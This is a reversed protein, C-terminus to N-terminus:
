QKNIVGDESLTYSSGSEDTITFSSIQESTLSSNAVFLELSSLSMTGVIKLGISSGNGVFPESSSEATLVETYTDATSRDWILAPIKLVGALTLHGDYLLRIDEPTGNDTSGEQPSITNSEMTVDNVRVKAQGSVYIGGGRGTDSASNSIFYCDNLINTETTNEFSIAGGNSYKGGTANSEFLTGTAILKNTNQDGGPPTMYIAGGPSSEGTTKNGIFQCNKLTLTGSKVLIAGGGSNSTNENNQMTCHTMTLDAEASIMSANAEISNGDFIILANDSGTFTLSQDSWFLEDLLESNRTITTSGVSILQVAANTVMITETAEMSGSIYIPSQLPTDGTIAEVLDAWTTVPNTQSGLEGEPTTTGPEQSPPNEQGTSDDAAVLRGESDLTYIAGDNGVVEFLGNPDGAYDGVSVIELGDPPSTTQTAAAFYTVNIKIKPSDVKLSSNANLQIRPQCPADAEVVFGVESIAVNQGIELTNEGSDSSGIIIDTTGSQWSGSLSVNNLISTGTSYLLGNGNVFHEAVVKTMSLTGESWILGGACNNMNNDNLTITYDDNGLSINSDPQIFFLGPFVGDPVSALAVTINLDQLPIIEKDGNFTISSEATMTTAKVYIKSTASDAVAEALEAWTTVPNTQSGLEGSVVGADPTTTGSTSSNTVAVADSTATATKNGTAAENTNKVVCYFYSTKGASVTATYDEKTAGSIETGGENSLSTNEYWQYTLSGGDSVSAAVMLVHTIDQTGGAAFSETKGEPQKTITPAAANVISPEAKFEESKEIGDTTVCWEDRTSLKVTATKSGVTNTEATAEWANDKPTAGTWSISVNEIVKYTNSSGSRDYLKYEVDAGDVTKYQATLVLNGNQTVTGAGAIALFSENLEYKTLVVASTTVNTGIRTVTYPVQGIAEASDGNTAGITYSNENPTVTVDVSETGSTYTETVTFDNHNIQGVLMYGQSGTYKATISTLEGEVSAVAVVSTITAATKAGTVSNNTNTIVCYFYKTEKANVTAEYNSSTAGEIATGGETSNTNNSYWQYILTGGDSVSAKVTLEKKVATVQGAAFTKTEGEPQTAITPTAANVISPEEKEGEESEPPPTDEEPEAGVLKPELHVTKEGPLVEMLESEGAYRLSPDTVSVLEVKVKLRTGAAVSDFAIAVPEGAVATTQQSQLRTGDELELWATVNWDAAGDASRGSSAGPAVFSLAFDASEKQLFVDSCSTLGAFLSAVLILIFLASFTIRRSIM